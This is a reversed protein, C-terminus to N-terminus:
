IAQFRAQCTGAYTYGGLGPGSTSILVFQGPGLVNNNSSPSWAVSIQAGSAVTKDAILEDSTSTAYQLTSTSFTLAGATSTGTTIQATIGLITSTAAHPNAIACLTTTATQMAQNARYEIVNGWRLYPSPIDPGSLAGFQKGTEPPTPTGVYLATLSAALVVSIAVTLFTKM